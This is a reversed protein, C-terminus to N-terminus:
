RYMRSRAVEVCSVDVPVDYTGCARGHSTGPMQLDHRHGAQLNEAGVSPQQLTHLARREVFPQPQRSLANWM